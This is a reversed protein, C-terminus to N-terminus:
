CQIIFDITSKIAAFVSRMLEFLNLRIYNSKLSASHFHHKCIM